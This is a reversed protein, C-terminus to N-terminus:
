QISKTMVDCGDTMSGLTTTRRGSHAPSLTRVLDKNIYTGHEVALSERPPPPSADAHVVLPAILAVSLIIRALIKM